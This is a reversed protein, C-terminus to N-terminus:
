RTRSVNSSRIRGELERPGDHMSFIENERPLALSAGAYEGERIDSSNGNSYAEDDDDMGYMCRHRIEIARQFNDTFFIRDGSPPDTYLIVGWQEGFKWIDGRRGDLSHRTLPLIIHREDVLIRDSYPECVVNNNRLYTEGMMTNVVYREPGISDIVGAIYTPRPIREAGGPIPNIPTSGSFIVVDGVSIVNEYHNFLENSLGSDRRWLPNGASSFAMRYKQGGIDIYLSGDPGVVLKQNQAQRPIVILYERAEEVEEGERQERGIEFQYLVSLQNLVGRCLPM